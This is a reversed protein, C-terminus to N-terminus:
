EMLRFPDRILYREMRSLTRQAMLHTYIVAGEAVYAMARHWWLRLRALPQLRMEDEVMAMKPSFEYWLDLRPEPMPLHNLLVKTRELARNEAACSSCQTLHEDVETRAPAPLTGDQYESLLGLVHKCHAM